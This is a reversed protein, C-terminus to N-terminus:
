VRVAQQLRTRVGSTVDLKQLMDVFKQDDLVLAARRRNGLILDTLRQQSVADLSPFLWTFSNRAPMSHSLTYLIFEDELVAPFDPDKVIVMRGDPLEELTSPAGELGNKGGFDWFGYPSAM